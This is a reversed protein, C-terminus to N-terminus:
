KGCAYAANTGGGCVNQNCWQDLLPGAAINAPDYYTQANGPTGASFHVHAVGNNKAIIGEFSAAIYGIVQGAKVRGSTVRNKTKLHAYYYNRNDEGILWLSPGGYPNTIDKVVGNVVAIVATGGLPHVGADIANYIPRCHGCVYSFKGIGIAQYSDPYNMFNAAVPCAHTGDTIVGSPAFTSNGVNTVVTNSDTQFVSFVGHTYKTFLMILTIFFFLYILIRSLIVSYAKEINIIKM